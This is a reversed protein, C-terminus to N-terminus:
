SSGTQWFVVVEVSPWSTPVDPSTSMSTSWPKLVPEDYVTLLAALMPIEDVRSTLIPIGSTASTESDTVTLVSIVLVSEFM